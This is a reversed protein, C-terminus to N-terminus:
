SDCDPNLTRNLAPAISHQMVIRLTGQRLQRCSASVVHYNLRIYLLLTDDRNHCRSDVCTPVAAPM